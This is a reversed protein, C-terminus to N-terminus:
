KVGLLERIVPALAKGWIEYGDANPHVLDPHTERCMLGNEDIFLDHINLFIIKEGDAMAPLAENVKLIRQRRPSQPTPDKPDSPFVALHLIRAEPWRARLKQLIKRNGEIATEPTMQLYGVDNTGIMLVIVRPSIGRTERCDIRKLCQATSHGGVAINLVRYSGFYKDWVELNELTNDWNDTISDGVFLIDITETKEGEGINEPLPSISFASFAWLSFATFAILIFTRRM